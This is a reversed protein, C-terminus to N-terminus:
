GAARPSRRGDRDLRTWAVLVALSLGLLVFSTLVGGSAVVYLVSGVVAGAFVPTPDSTGDRRAVRLSAALVVLGLAFGALVDPLYHVGLALRSLSVVAVVLAAGGLRRRRSGVALVTALGVYVVTVTTAHGSPFGYSGATATAEVLVAAGGYDTGAALSEAPRPVALVHKITRYIGVAVLTAGVVTAIARRCDTFQWYVLVFLLAVFWSDGLQTALGFVFVSWEPLVDVTAETIGVDRIVVPRRAWM